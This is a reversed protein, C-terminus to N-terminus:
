VAMADSLYELIKWLMETKAGEDMPLEYDYEGGDVSAGFDITHKDTDYSVIFDCGVEMPDINDGEQTIVENLADYLIQDHQVLLTYVGVYMLNDPEDSIFVHSKIDKATLM